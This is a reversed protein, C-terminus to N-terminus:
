EIGPPIVWRIDHYFGGGDFDDLPEGTIEWGYGRIVVNHQEVTYYMELSRMSDLCLTWIDPQRGQAEHSKHKIVAEDHRTRIAQESAERLSGLTWGCSSAWVNFDEDLARHYTIPMHALNRCTGQQNLPSNDRKIPTNM